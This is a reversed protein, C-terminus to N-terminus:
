TFKSNCIRAFLLRIFVNANLIYLLVYVYKEIFTRITIFKKEYSQWDSVTNDIHQGLNKSKDM